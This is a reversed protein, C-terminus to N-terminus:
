LEKAGGNYKQEHKRYMKKLQKKYERDLDGGLYAKNSVELKRRYVIRAQEWDRRTEAVRIELLSKM